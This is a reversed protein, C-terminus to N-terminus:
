LLDVGRPLYAVTNWDSIMAIHSPECSISRSSTLPLFIKIQVSLSDDMPDSGDTFIEDPTTRWHKVINPVKDLSLLTENVQTGPCEPISPFSFASSSALPPLLVPNM